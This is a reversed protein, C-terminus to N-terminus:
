QILAVQISFQTRKAFDHKKELWRKTRSDESRKRIAVKEIAGSSQRLGFGQPMGTPEHFCRGAQPVVFIGGRQLHADQRFTLANKM